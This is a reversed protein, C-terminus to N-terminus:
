QPSDGSEEQVFQASLLGGERNAAPSGPILANLLVISSIGLFLWAFGTAWIEVLVLKQPSGSCGARFLTFFAQSFPVCAYLIWAIRFLSENVVRKREFVLAFLLVAYLVFIWTM